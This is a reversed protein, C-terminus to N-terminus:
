KDQGPIPGTPYVNGQNGRWRGEARIEEKDIQHLHRKLVEAFSRKIKYTQGDVPITVTEVGVTLPLNMGLRKRYIPPISVQVDDELLLKEKAKKQLQEKAKEEKLRYEHAKMSDKGAM